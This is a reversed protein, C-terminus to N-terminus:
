GFENRRAQWKARGVLESAGSMADYVFIKGNTKTRITHMSLFSRQRISEFDAWPIEGNPRWPSVVFIGVDDFEISSFHTELILFGGAILTFLILFVHVSTDDPQDFITRVTLIALVVVVLDIIARLGLAYYLRRRGTQPSVESPRNGFYSAMLTAAAAGILGSIVATSM